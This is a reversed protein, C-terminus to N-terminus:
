LQRVDIVVRGIVEVAGRREVDSAVGVHVGSTVGSTWIREHPVIFQVGTLLSVTDDSPLEDINDFAVALPRCVPGIASLVTERAFCFSHM